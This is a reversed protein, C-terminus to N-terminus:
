ATVIAAGRGLAARIWHAANPASSAEVVIDIAPDAALAAADYTLPAPAEHRRRLHPRLVAIRALRLRSGTIHEVWRRREVFSSAFASGVTGCGILGVRLEVPSM